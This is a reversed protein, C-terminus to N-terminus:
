NKGKDNFSDLLKTAERMSLIYRLYTNKKANTVTYELATLSSGVVALAVFCLIVCIMYVAEPTLNKPTPEKVVSTNNSIFFLQSKMYKVLTPCTAQWAFADCSDTTCADM